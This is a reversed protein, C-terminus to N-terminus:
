NEGSGHQPGVQMDHQHQQHVRGSYGRLSVYQQVQVAELVKITTLHYKLHATRLAAQASGITQTAAALSAETV